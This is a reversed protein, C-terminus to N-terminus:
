KIRIKPLNVSKKSRKQKKPKNFINKNAKFPTVSSTKNNKMKKKPPEITEFDEEDLMSGDHKQDNDVNLSHRRKNGTMRNTNLDDDENESESEDMNDHDNKNNQKSDYDSDEDNEIEQLIQSCEQQSYTNENMVQNLVFANKKRIEKQQNSDIELHEILFKHNENEKQLCNIQQQYQGNEVEIESLSAELEKIQATKKLVKAKYQELSTQIADCQRDTQSEIRENEKLVKSLKKKTESVIKKLKKKDEITQKLKNALKQAKHQLSKYKEQLQKYQGDSKQNHENSDNMQKKLTDIYDDKSCLKDKLHNMEQNLSKQENKLASIQDKLISHKEKLAESVTQHNISNSSLSELRTELKVIQREKSAIDRQFHKQMKENQVDNQEIITHLKNNKSTIKIIKEDLSHVSQKAKNYMARIKNNQNSIKSLIEQFSHITKRLADNQGLLSIMIPEYQQQISNDKQM